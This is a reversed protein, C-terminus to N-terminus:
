PSAEVSLPATQGARYMPYAVGAVIAANDRCLPLPALTLQLGEEQAMDQLEERLLSNAAVGGGVIIGRTEQQEAALRAKEVLVDVVAAQFSAAMDAVMQAEYSASEIDEMSANQGLCHYLVATKLGSFSFDLSEGDLWARPLDFAEPDGVRAARDILPGGPFGLQLIKAVKDFAEGAADDATSGLLEHELPGTTRFLSTHGGSVVLSVAPLQPDEGSLWGGYIHADLHNVAVLPVDLAWSAAKAATLGILLAGILGPTRTVAVVDIEGFELGADDVAQRIVPLINEIHARCAIEPVVGGFREHLEDQSSVISSLIERGDEVVACATDDCSSELGLIKM